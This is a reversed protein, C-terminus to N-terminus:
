LQSGCHLGRRHKFYTGTFKKPKLTTVFGNTLFHRFHPNQITPFTLVKEVLRIWSYVIFMVFVTPMAYRYRLMNAHVTCLISGDIVLVYVALVQVLLRSIFLCYRGTPSALVAVVAGVDDTAKKAAADEVMNDICPLLPLLPTRLDTASGLPSSCPGM